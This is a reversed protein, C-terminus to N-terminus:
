PGPPGWVVAELKGPEWIVEGDDVAPPPPLTCRPCYTIRSVPETEM